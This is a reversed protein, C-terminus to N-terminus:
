LTCAYDHVLSIFLESTPRLYIKRGDNEMIIKAKRVKGDNESKIAEVVRALHWKNRPTDEKVSVIDGVELGRPRENWKPRPQLNQLYDQKWRSWFQDALYQARRWYQRSYLDQFTFTGPPSTLPKTKMTLLMNPTLPQPQEPDSPVIAIARSNVIGTVEAMLTVLLEHTLQSPGLALFMGNLVRRITGIQREWIGGFHSAHPPNFIWECNQEAAYTAISKRDQESWAKDLEAKAGVFNTGRDGRLVPSPGRVAFFRRLACIFSSATM